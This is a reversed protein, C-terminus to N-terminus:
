MTNLDMYCIRCVPYYMDDSGILIKENSDIYRHSFIAKNNCLNCKAYLKTIKDCFPILDLWNGFTNTNFDGDLGNIYIHKNFNVIVFRVWSVIDNFFQAENIMIIDYNNILTNVNILKDTMFCPIMENDHSSLKNYSYRIDKDYNILLINDNKENTLENYLNIMKTTKGSFMPGTIIELYGCSYNM